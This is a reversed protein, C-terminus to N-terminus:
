RSKGYNLIYGERIVEGRKNRKILIYWKGASHEEGYWSSGEPWEKVDIRSKKSNLTWIGSWNHGGFNALYIGNPLLAFTYQEKDMKTTYAGEVLKETLKTPKVPFPAPASNVTCGSAWLYMTLLITMLVFFLWGRFEM